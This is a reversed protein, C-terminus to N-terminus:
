LTYKQFLALVKGIKPPKLIQQIPFCVIQPTTFLETKYELVSNCFSSFNIDVSSYSYDSDVKVEMQENHCCDTQGNCCSKVPSNISIDKLQGMCYHASVSFGITTTLLLIATIIHTLKKIMVILAPLNFM